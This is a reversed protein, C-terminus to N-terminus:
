EPVALRFPRCCVFWFRRDGRWMEVRGFAPLAAREFGLLPMKRVDDLARSVLYLLSKGYAPLDPTPLGDRRENEDSLYYSWLRDARILGAAGAAAYHQVAFRASCAAAFLTVTQMEVRAPLLDSQTLRQLLHGLLIAGASHGVLHVELTRNKGALQSRLEILNRALLDIGHGPRVSNAANERMESWIGRGFTRAALEVARDAEESVEERIWDLVGGSREQRFGPIKPLWDKVSDAVTEGAGTRWTLFLPYIGNAIFYPALVRIRSVSEEESNLGGHAYIMLKATGPAQAMFWKRPGDVVIEEAYSERGDVPHHTVDDVILEGENGSVLTRAYAEETPLPRYAPFEFDHDIPWPDEQPNGKARAARARIAVTRSSPVPWRPSRRRGDRVTPVGLACTWADTGHEVWDGYPLCAFGGAGWSAGWSNQVIFGREDYGVLAFAHGGLSRRDRLRGVLPADAHSRPAPTPARRDLADWGDHADASVYVAGIEVIAAQLDVISRRNVRYYVGLPRSAADEDWGRRPRVFVARGKSDFVYPWLDVGCVGHKHWGKMAGRCSSWEYTTGPWEDYRRAMEFLMRASVRQFPAKTGSEVHRLWLLYNAVCALGFGTCAGEQGQDLILGAKAYAPMLQRVIADDPYRHPLSRLAPRYNLDRFDLRDPRADLTRERFTLPVDL